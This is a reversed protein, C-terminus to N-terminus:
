RLRVGRSKNTSQLSFARSTLSCFLSSQVSSFPRTEAAAQFRLNGRPPPSVCSLCRCVCLAIRMEHFRITEAEWPHETPTCPPPLLSPSCSQPLATSEGTDTCLRFLLQQGQCPLTRCLQLQSGKVQLIPQSLAEAATGSVNKKNLVCMRSKQSEWSLM